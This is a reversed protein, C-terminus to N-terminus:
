DSARCDSLTPSGTLPLCHSCSSVGCSRTPFAGEIEVGPALRTFSTPWHRQTLAHECKEPCNLKFLRVCSFTPHKRRLLRACTVDSQASELVRESIHSALEFNRSARFSYQAHCVNPVTAM